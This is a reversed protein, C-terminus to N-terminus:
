GEPFLKIEPVFPTEWPVMVPGFVKILAFLQERVVDGAKKRGHRAYVSKNWAVAGRENLVVEAEWNINFRIGLAPQTNKGEM